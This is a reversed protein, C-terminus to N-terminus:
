AAIQSEILIDGFIEEQSIFIKGMKMLELISLFTVIIEVKSSQSELLNRFSFNKHSLAYNELYSMKEEM